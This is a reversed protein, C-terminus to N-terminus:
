LFSLIKNLISFVSSFLSLLLLLRVSAALLIAGFGFQQVMDYMKVQANEILSRESSPKIRIHEIDDISDDKKGAM